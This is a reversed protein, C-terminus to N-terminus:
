QNLMRTLAESCTKEYRASASTTDIKDNYDIPETPIALEPLNRRVRHMNVLHALWTDGEGDSLRFLHREELTSLLTDDTDINFNRMGADIMDDSGRSFSRYIYATVPGNDQGYTQDAFGNLDDKWEEVSNYEDLRDRVYVLYGSYVQGDSESDNAIFGSVPIIRDIYDLLPHIM